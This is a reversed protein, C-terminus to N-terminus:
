KYNTKQIGKAEPVPLSLNSYTEGSTNNFLLVPMEIAAAVQLNKFDIGKVDDTIVAPRFDPEVYRLRVNNFKIGEAHRIYFGWAPLEGFMSFDPYAAENEPVGTIKDLPIYAINKDARGGYSIEINELTVDQVPHGPLGVISSPVLNYPLFPHGYIHYSGPRFPMKDVGPKLHDPPGEIPYGQDPKLLPTEVKVNAIYINKITSYTEKPATYGRRENRHGLRIFIANGTNKANIYQIDINEAVGGDVAEIAIASRYTDYIDLHRIKVNRFGGANATGFKLGNASSRLTCSDAFINECGGDPRESKFCLADDSANVFCNTIRVNKSDTIDIGDNNWYTTSQVTIRDIVVGDCDRYDNVWGSANKLTVGTVRVDKCGVFFLVQARGAEGPRKYMWTSDHEKIEGSRLKRFIDVMLEQGQGDLIGEGTVAVHQQHDAMVLSPKNALRQYESTSHAGLLVGGLKIHLEVGSKLWITGTMFNGAPVIVRGGGSAAVEDIARQIFRTNITRGDAVAGYATILKDKALAPLAACLALALLMYKNKM